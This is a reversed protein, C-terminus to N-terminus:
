NFFSATLGTLCKRVSCSPLSSLAFGAYEANESKPQQYHYLKFDYIASEVQIKGSDACTQAMGLRELLSM